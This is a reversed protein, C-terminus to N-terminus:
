KSGCKGSGCKMSHKSQGGCKGAGCKMNKNECMMGGMSKNWSGKFNTYLWNAVAEREAESLSKGIPPMTGFRKYAMPMCVGKDQSPNVIYDKVFAVFSAKDEGKMKKVRMSVMNMPPAKMGSEQMKKKMDTKMQAKVEASATQMKEKMAKMQSMDMMGKMQHCAACNQTYVSQGSIAFLSSVVFFLGVLVKKM